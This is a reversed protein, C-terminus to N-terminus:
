SLSKDGTRSNTTNIRLSLFIFYFQISNFSIVDHVAQLKLCTAIYSRNNM